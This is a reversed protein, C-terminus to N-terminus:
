YSPPKILQHWLCHMPFYTSNWLQSYGPSALFALCGHEILQTCFAIHTFAFALTPQTEFSAAAANGTKSTNDSVVAAFAVIPLTMATAIETDTDVFQQSM